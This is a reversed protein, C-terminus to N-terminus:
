KLFPSAKLQAVTQTNKFKTLYIELEEKTMKYEKVPEQPYKNKLEKTQYYWPTENENHKM